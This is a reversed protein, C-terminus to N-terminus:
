SPTILGKIRDRRAANSPAISGGIAIGYKAWNQQNTLGAEPSGVTFGGTKPVIFDAAQQEYYVRFNDGRVRNFNIVQVEDPAILNREPWDALVYDMSIDMMPVGGRVPANPKAFTTDRIVIKRAEISYLPGWKTGVSVNTYNRLYSNELVMETGGTWVTPFTVGIGMNQIDADRIALNRVAYDSTFVGVSGWPAMQAADGRVKLGEITIGNAPYFGLGRGVHWVQFSQIVSQPVQGSANNRLGVYWVDM